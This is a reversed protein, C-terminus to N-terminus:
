RRRQIKKKFCINKEVIKRLPNVKFNERYLVGEYIQIVKRGIKVIECIDVSTLTDIIYGNRMRNIDINKVKKKISHQFILNRPNYQKVRLIASENGNENVTQNNVVDVYTINMHPKFAFGTEIKPYASKEDWM